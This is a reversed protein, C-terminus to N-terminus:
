ERNQQARHALDVAIKLEADSASKQGLRALTLGYYYHAPQYTPSSSVARALFSRAEPYDKARFALVGMCTLAGGHSPDRALVKQLLPRAEDDHQLDTAIQGLQYYSETQVPQLAISRKFETTADPIRQEMVLLHGLGFHATADDPRAALYARLHAEASPLHKEDTELRGLAYLTAPDSPRLRLSAELVEEAEPYQGLQDAQIGLDLLLAPDDPLSSRAHELCLLAADPHGSTRAQLALRTAAQLEGARARQNRLDIALVTEFRDMAEPYHQQALLLDGLALNAAPDNPSAALARALLVHADAAHGDQLELAAQATLSRPDDPASAPAAQTQTAALPQPTHASLRTTFLCSLITFAFCALAPALRPM